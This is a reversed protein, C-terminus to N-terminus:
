GDKAADLVIISNSKIILHVQQGDRLALDSLALSTIEVVLLAGVDVYVLVRAGRIHIEQITGELINQASIKTPVSLALIIDGAGISVTVADGPNSHVEPVWLRSGGLSLQALEDGENVSVVEGEVLNEFSAYDALASVQPHVLVQSPRGQVVTKGESLVLASNALAMVESISHSVYVMPTHLEERVRKLYRIIVGKFAADLSGLPEDLLLLRPSTALARALAVRQREGGSLSRVGRDLLGSLQFLDVLQEPEIRRQAIPTLKYGYSINKWVTLHPFLASDQFVYAFRRKEPPVNKRSASSYVTEGLAEVEGEDPSVLGAICNLLTTKGSGSPGFVAIDGSDFSAECELSFGPYRKTINFSLLPNGM